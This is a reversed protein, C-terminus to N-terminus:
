KRSRGGILTALLPLAIGLLTGIFGGKQGGTDAVLLKRKTATSIKKDAMRRIQRKYKCLRKKQAFSMPLRGHRTNSCIECLTKLEEPSANRFLERREKGHPLSGAYRLFAEHKKIRDMM